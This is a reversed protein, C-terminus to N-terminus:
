YGMMDSILRAKELNSGEASRCIIVTKQKTKAIDELFIRIESDSLSLASVIIPHTNCYIHHDNVLYHQYNAIKLPTKSQISVQYDALLKLIKQNPKKSVELWFSINDLNKALLLITKLKTDDLLDSSKVEFILQFREELEEFIGEIDENSDMPLLLANFQNSYYDFRWEAPLDDPYFDDLFDLDYRGIFFETQM